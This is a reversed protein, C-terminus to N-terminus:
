SGSPVLRRQSLVHRLAESVKMADLEAQATPDDWNLNHQRLVRKQLYSLRLLWVAHELDDATRVSFSIWGTNPLIHHQKARQEAVLQDRIARSFLIDVVGGVHVHGIETTGMRFEIGGFRHPATEVNEWQSIRNSLESVVNM